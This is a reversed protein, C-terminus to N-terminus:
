IKGIDHLLAIYYYKEVTERDCGMETALMSTFQAVRISHGNTYEDKMDITKAFAETMERIFTQNERHKRELARTKRRYYLLVVGAVLAMGLLIQLVQFWLYEQISKTKVIPVSIEQKGRGMSDTIQMVFRYSGGKLNTYDVPALETRNVTTTKREFGELHYTM